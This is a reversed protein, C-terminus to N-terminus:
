TPFFFRQRWAGGLEVGRANFGAWKQFFLIFIIKSFYLIQERGWESSKAHFSKEQLSFIQRSAGV